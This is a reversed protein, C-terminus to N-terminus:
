NAPNEDNNADIVHPPKRQVVGIQVIQQNFTFNNGTENGFKLKSLYQLRQLRCDKAIDLFRPDGVGSIVEDHQEFYTTAVDNNGKKPYGKKRTVSKTKDKKSIEWAEWAEREIENLGMLEIMIRQDIDDIREKQWANIIEKVYFACTKDTVVLGTNAKLWKSMGNFSFGRLYLKSVNSKILEKEEITKNRAM